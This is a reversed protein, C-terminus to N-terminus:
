ERLVRGWVWRVGVLVLLVLLMLLVLRVRLMLLMGLVLRVVLLRLMGLVGLVGLVGRALVGMVEEAGARGLDVADGAELIAGSGRERLSGRRRQGARALPSGSRSLHLLLLLLLWLLRGRRQAVQM